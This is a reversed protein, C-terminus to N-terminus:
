NTSRMVERDHPMAAVLAFAPFPPAQGKPHKPAWGREAQLWPVNRTCADGIQASSSAPM